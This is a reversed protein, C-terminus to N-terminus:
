ICDHANDACLSLTVTYGTEIARAFICARGTLNWYRIREQVCEAIVKDYVSSIQLQPLPNPASAIDVSDVEWRGLPRIRRQINKATEFFTKSHWDYWHEKWDEWEEFSVEPCFLCKFPAGEEKIRQFDVVPQALLQLSESHSSSTEQDFDSLYEFDPELDCYLKVDLKRLGIQKMREEDFVLWPEFWKEANNARKTMLNKMGEAYGFSHLINAMYHESNRLMEFGIYVEIESFTGFPANLIKDVALKMDCERLPMSNCYHCKLRLTSENSHQFINIISSIIQYSYGAHTQDENKWHLYEVTGSVEVQDFVKFDSCPAQQLWMSLDALFRPSIDLCVLQKIPFMKPIPITSISATEPLYVHGTGIKIGYRKRTVIRIVTAPNAGILIRQFERFGGQTEILYSFLKLKPLSIPGSHQLRDPNPHVNLLTLKELNQFKRIQDFTDETLTIGRLTLEKLTDYSAILGHQLIPSQWIKCRELKRFPLLDPVVPDGVHDYIDDGYSRISFDIVNKGWSDHGAIPQAEERRYLTHVPLFEDINLLKPRSFWEKKWNKSLPGNKSSLPSIDLIYIASPNRAAICLARCVKQVNILDMFHLFHFLHSQLDTPVRLLTLPMKNAKISSTTRNQHDAEKILRSEYVSDKLDLQKDAPLISQIEDYVATPIKQYINDHYLGAVFINMLISSVEHSHFIRVLQQLTKWQQDSDCSSLKRMLRILPVLKEKEFEAM